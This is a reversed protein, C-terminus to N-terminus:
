DKEWNRKTGSKVVECPKRVSIMDSRATRSEDKNKKEPKAAAPIEAGLQLLEVHDHTHMSDNERHMRQDDDDDSRNANHESM